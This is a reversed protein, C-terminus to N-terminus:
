SPHEIGLRGELALLSNQLRTRALMLGLAIGLTNLAMDTYEFVRYGGLGQLIEVGIGMLCLAVALISRGLNTRYIQTFWLTLWLYALVHGIDLAQPVRLDPPNSTLSLYLVLAVYIGGLTIWLKRM